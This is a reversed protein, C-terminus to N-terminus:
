AAQDVQELTTGSYTPRRSLRPPSLQCHPASPHRRPPLPRQPLFLLSGDLAFSGPYYAVLRRPARLLPPSQRHRKQGRAIGMRPTPKSTSTPLCHAAPKPTSPSTKCSPSSAAKAATQKFDPGHPAPHAPNRGEQEVQELATQFGSLREVVAAWEILRRYPTPLGASATKSAPLSTRTQMMDGFTM